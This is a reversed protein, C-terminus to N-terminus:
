ASGSRGWRTGLDPLTSVDQLYFYAEVAEDSTGVELAVSRREYLGEHVGEVEDLRTLCATSVRWVEGEIRNGSGSQTEILAPYSGCHFLRYQPSTIATGVFQQDALAAHYCEGRMLTGYVFVLPV